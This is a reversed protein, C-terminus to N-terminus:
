HNLEASLQKPARTQNRPSSRYWKNTAMSHHHGMYFISFSQCSTLEPRIMRLLLLFNLFWKLPLSSCLGQLWASLQTFGLDTVEKSHSRQGIIKGKHANTKEQLITQCGWRSCLQKFLSNYTLPHVCDPKDWSNSNWKTWQTIWCPSPTNSRTWNSFKDLIGTHDTKSDKVIPSGTWAQQNWAAYNEDKDKIGLSIPNISPRPRRM